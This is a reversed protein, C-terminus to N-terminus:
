SSGERSNETSCRLKVSDMACARVTRVACYGPLPLLNNWGHTHGVYLSVEFHGASSDALEHRVADHPMCSLFRQLEDELSLAVCELRVQVDHNM